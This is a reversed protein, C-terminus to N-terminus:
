VTSRIGPHTTSGTARRRRSGQYGSRLREPRRCGTASGAPCPSANVAARMSYSPSSNWPAGGDAAAHRAGGCSAASETPVMSPKAPRPGPFDISRSPRHVARSRAASLADGTTIPARSPPRRRPRPRAAKCGGQDGFSGQDGFARSGHSPPSPRGDHPRAEPCSRDRRSRKHAAAALVVGAPHTRRECLEVLGTRTATPLSRPTAAPAFKVLGRRLPARHSTSRSSRRRRWCAPLRPAHLRNFGQRRAPGPEVPPRAHRHSNQATGGRERLAHTFRFYGRGANVVDDATAERCM